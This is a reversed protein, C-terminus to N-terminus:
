EHAAGGMPLETIAISEVTNGPVLVTVKQMPGLLMTLLRERLTVTRCAVVGGNKPPKSVSITLNHKM